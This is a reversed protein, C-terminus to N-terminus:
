DMRTKIPNKITDCLPKEGGIDKSYKSLKKISDLPNRNTQAYILKNYKRSNKQEKNSKENTGKYPSTPHWFHYITGPVKYEKKTKYRCRSMVENDMAGLGSMWENMGGIEYYFNKEFYVLGGEPGGKRPKWRHNIKSLDESLYIIEDWCFTWQCKKEKIYDHINNFHLPKVPCDLEGLIINNTKSNNVGVNYLWCKNFGNYNKKIYHIDSRYYDLNEWITEKNKETSEVIIININYPITLIVLSLNRIRYVLDDDHGYHIPIILDYDYNM